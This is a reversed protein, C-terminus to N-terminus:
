REARAYWGPDQAALRERTEEEALHILRPLRRYDGWVFRRVRELRIVADARDLLIETLARTRVADARALIELLSHPRSPDSAPPLDVAVIPSESERLCGLPLETYLVSSIFERGDISVPPFLGPFAVSAHVIESLKGESLGVEERRELDIACVVAPIELDAATREGFLDSLGREVLEGPLISLRKMNNACFLRERLFYSLDGLGRRTAGRPIGSVHELGWLYRDNESFFRGFREALRDLDGGLGFHAAIVASIGTAVIREIKVGQKDIAKLAGINAVGRLGVGGLVLTIGSAM